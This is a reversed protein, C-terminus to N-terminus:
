SLVRSSSTRQRRVHMSPGVNATCEDNAALSAGQPISGTVSFSLDGIIDDVVPLICKRLREDQTNKNALHRLTGLMAGGFPEEGRKVFLRVGKVESLV